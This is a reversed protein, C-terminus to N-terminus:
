VSRLGHEEYVSKLRNYITWQEKEGDEVPFVDSHISCIDRTREEPLNAWSAIQRTSAIQKGGKDETNKSLASYVRKKHARELIKACGFQALRNFVGAIFTM